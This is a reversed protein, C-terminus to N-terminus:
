VLIANRNDKTFVSEFVGCVFVGDVFSGGEKVSYVESLAQETLHNSSTLQKGRDFVSAVTPQYPATAFASASVFACLGIIAVSFYRKRSKSM